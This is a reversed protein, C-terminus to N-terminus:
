SEKRLGTVPHPTHSKRIRGHSAAKTHPWCGFSATRRKTAQARKPKRRRYATLDAGSIDLGSAAIATFVDLLQAVGPWSWDGCEVDDADVDTGPLLKEWIDTGNKNVVYNFSTSWQATM